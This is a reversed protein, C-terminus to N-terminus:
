EGTDKTPEDVTKETETERKDEADVNMNETIEAASENEAVADTKEEPEPEVKEDTAVANSVPASKKVPKKNSFQFNAPTVNNASNNMLGLHDRFYRWIAHVMIPLLGGTMIFFGFKLSDAASESNTTAWGYVSTCIILSVTAVRLMRAQSYNPLKYSFFYSLLSIIISAAVIHEPVISEFM